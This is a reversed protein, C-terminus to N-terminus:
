GLGLFPPRTEGSVEAAGKGIRPLRIGSALIHLNHCRTRIIFSGQGGVTAGEETGDEGDRM